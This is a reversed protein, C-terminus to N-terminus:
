KMEGEGSPEGLIAAIRDLQDETLSKANTRDFLDRQATRKIIRQAEELENGIKCRYRPKGKQIGDRRDFRTPESWGINVLIQTATTRVVPKIRPDRFAEYIVVEDGAKLNTLWDERTQTM